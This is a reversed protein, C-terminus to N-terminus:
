TRLHKVPTGAHTEIRKDLEEYSAQAQDKTKLFDVEGWRSMCDVYDASYKHKGLSEVSAPGWLDAHIREGYKTARNKAEDPLPKGPQHECLANDMELIPMSVLPMLSRSPSSPSHWQPHTPRM